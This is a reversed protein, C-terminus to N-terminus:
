FRNMGGALTGLREDGRLSRRAGLVGTYLRSAPRAAGTRRRRGKLSCSGGEGRARSCATSIVGNPTVGLLRAAVHLTRHRM